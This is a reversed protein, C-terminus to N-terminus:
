QLATGAMQSSGDGLYIPCRGVFPVAAHFSRDCDNQTAGCAQNRHRSGGRATRVGPSAVFFGRPHARGSIPALAGDFARDLERVLNVVVPDVCVSEPTAAIALLTGDVDLFCVFPKQRPARRSSIGGQDNHNITRLSQSIYILFNAQGLHRGLFITYAIAGTAGETVRRHASHFCDFFLRPFRKFVLGQNGRTREDVSHAREIALELAHRARGDSQV